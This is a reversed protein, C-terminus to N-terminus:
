FKMGDYAPIINEPLQKLLVDYDLDFHLNTLIMTKPKVINNWELVRELHAHTPHPTYRLCDVVWYKLDKNKLSNLTEDSLHHVDPSYAVDQIIFGKATIQGHPCAFTEIMMGHYEFSDEIINMSMIAPYGSNPASHFIYDFRKQLIDATYKDAYCPITDQRIFTFARIDDIGHTQDAHDHTFFVADIHKINERLTHFRMDPSTDIIINVADNMRVFLSCRTRNNKPNDPNCDGWYGDTRPVGGSSGCGLITYEINHPM